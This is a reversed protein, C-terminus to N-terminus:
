RRKRIPMFTQLILSFPKLFIYVFEVPGHTSTSIAKLPNRKCFAKMRTLIHKIPCM